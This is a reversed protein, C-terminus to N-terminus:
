VAYEIRLENTTVEEIDGSTVRCANEVLIQAWYVNAFDVEYSVVIIDGRMVAPCYIQFVNNYVQMDSVLNSRVSNYNVVLDAIAAGDGPIAYESTLGVRNEIVANNMDEAAEITLTYRITKSEADYVGTDYRVSVNAANVAAAPVPAENVAEEALDETDPTEIVAEEAVTEGIAEEAPKIATEGAAEEEVAEPVTEPPAPEVTEPTEVAANEELPPGPGEQERPADTGGSNIDPAAPAEANAFSEAYSESVPGADGEFAFGSNSFYYYVGGGVFICAVALSVYL